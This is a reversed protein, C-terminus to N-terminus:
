ANRKAIPRWIPRWADNSQRALPLLACHATMSQIKETGRGDDPRGNSQRNAVEPWRREGPASIATTVAASVAASMEPTPMKATMEASTMKTTTMEPPAVETGHMHTMHMGAGSMKVPMVECAMIEFPAMLRQMGITIAIVMEIPVSSQRVMGDRGLPERTERSEVAQLPMTEIAVGKAPHALPVMPRAAMPAGAPIM